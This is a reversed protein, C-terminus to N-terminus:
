DWAVIHFVRREPEGIVGVADDYLQFHGTESSTTVPLNDPITALIEKLRGVTLLVKSKAREDIM